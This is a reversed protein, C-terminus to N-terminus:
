ELPLTVSLKGFPEYELWNYRKGKFVAVLRLTPLIKRQPWDIQRDRLRRQDPHQACAASMGESPPSPATPRSLSPLVDFRELRTMPNSGPTTAPQKRSWISRKPARGPIIVLLECSLVILGRPATTQQGGEATM